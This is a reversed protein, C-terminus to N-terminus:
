ALDVNNTLYLNVLEDRAILYEERLDYPHVRNSLFIFAKQEVPNVLLFTGTYGTHFLYNEAKLDWGLSRNANKLPSYDQLLLSITEKKLFTQKFFVEKVFQILDNLTSFLGASGAHKGLKNAKPDHTMGRTTTLQTPVALSPPSIPQFRSEKMKLPTLILEQFVEQAYKQYIEEIMFGMLVTGTDTYAFTKGINDGSKLHNYAEKLEHASLEDRHPIFPNIDSTHTLLHRLTVKEDLFSPYYLSFPQDIDVLGNEWLKLVVMGTCVVKTVSAMDFLMNEKLKEKFPLIQAYGQHFTQVNEGEIFAWNAGPYVGENMQRNILQNIQIM